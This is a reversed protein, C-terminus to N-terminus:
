FYLKYHIFHLKGTIKVVNEGAADTESRAFVVGHERGRPQLAM